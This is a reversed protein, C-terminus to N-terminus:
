LTNIGTINQLIVYGQQNWNSVSTTNTSGNLYVGKSFEVQLTKGDTFAASGEFFEVSSTTSNNVLNFDRLVISANSQQNKMDILVTKYHGASKTYYTVELLDYNYVSDNMPYTSPTAFDITGEWLKVSTRQQKLLKWGVNNGGYYLSFTNGVYDSFNVSIFKQDKTTDGADNDVQVTGRVSRGKPTGPIGGQAYFTHYGQPVDKILDTLSKNGVQSQRWVYNYYNSSDIDVPMASKIVDKPVREIWESWTGNNYKLMFVSDTNDPLFEAVGFTNDKSLKFDLWGVNLNNKPPNVLSVHQTISEKLSKIDVTNGSLYFNGEDLKFQSWDSLKGNNCTRVYTKNSNNPSYYMKYYSTLRKEFVLYGAIYADSPQNISGMVYYMGTDTIKLLINNFDVDKVVPLLEQNVQSSLYSGIDNVKPYMDKIKNNETLPTYNFTM